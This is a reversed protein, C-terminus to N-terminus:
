AVVERSFTEIEESVLIWIFKLTHVLFNTFLGQFSRHLLHSRHDRKERWLKVRRRRDLILSFKQLWCNAVRLLGFIVDAGSSSLASDRPKEAHRKNRLSTTSYCSFKIKPLRLLIGTMFLKKRWECTNHDSLKFMARPFYRSNDRNKDTEFASSCSILRGFQM